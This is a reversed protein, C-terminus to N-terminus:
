SVRVEHITAFRNWPKAYADAEWRTLFAHVLEVESSKVYVVYICKM